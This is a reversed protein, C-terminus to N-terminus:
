PPTGYNFLIMELGLRECAIARILTDADRLFALAERSDLPPHLTATAGKQETPHRTELRRNSIDFLWHFDHHLSRRVETDLAREKEPDTRGPLLKRVVELAKAFLFYPGERTASMYGEYHFRVLARTVPDTTEYAALAKAVTALPFSFATRWHVSHSRDEVILGQKAAQLERDVERANTRWGTPPAIESLFLDFGASRLPLGTAFAWVLELDEILAVGQAHLEWVHDAIQIPRDLILRYSGYPVDGRTYAAPTFRESLDWGRLTARGPSDPKLVRLRIEPSEFSLKM